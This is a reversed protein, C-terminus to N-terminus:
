IAHHARVLCVSGTGLQSVLQCRFVEVVCLPQSLPWVVLRGQPATGALIVLGQDSACVDVTAAIM